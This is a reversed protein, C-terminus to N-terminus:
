RRSPTARIYGGRGYGGRYGGYGGRYYRTAEVDDAQVGREKLARRASPM